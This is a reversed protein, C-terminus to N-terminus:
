CRRLHCGHWRGLGLFFRIVLNCVIQHKNLFSDYTVEIQDININKFEKKMEKVGMKMANVTTKTDKLSQTAYNTQEMNFAQNRLNDSQAEYSKKQKLVRLAKQKVANKAPGDRMKSMQERYKKLEADLRGIKKDM